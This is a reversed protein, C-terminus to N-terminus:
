SLNLAVSSKVFLYPMDRLPMLDNGYCIQLAPNGNGQEDENLIRRRIQISDDIWKETIGKDNSDLQLINDRHIRTPIAIRWSKFSSNLTLTPFFDETKRKGESAGSESTLQIQTAHSATRAKNLSDTNRLKIVLLGIVDAWSFSADEVDPLYTKLNGLYKDFDDIAM